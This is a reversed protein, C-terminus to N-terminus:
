ALFHGDIFCFARGREHQWFIFPRGFLNSFSDRKEKALGRSGEDIQYFSPPCPCSRLGYLLIRFDQWELFFRLFKCSSERVGVLFYADKLDIKVM